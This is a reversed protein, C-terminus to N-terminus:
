FLENETAIAKVKGNHATIEVKGHDPIEKIKTKGNSVVVICHKGQLEKIKAIDDVTIEMGFRRTNYHIQSYMMVAAPALKAGNIKTKAVHSKSAWVYVTRQSIGFKKGIEDAKGTAIHENNEFVDYIAEGTKKGERDSIEQGLACAAEFAGPVGRDHLMMLKSLETAM